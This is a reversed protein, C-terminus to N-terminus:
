SGAHDQLIGDAEAKLATATMPTVNEATIDEAILCVADFDAVLCYSLIHAVAAQEWTGTMVFGLYVSRQGVCKRFLKEGAGEPVEEEVFEDIDAFLANLLDEDYTANRGRGALDFRFEADEEHTDWDNPLQLEYGHRDIASQLADVTPVKDPHLFNAIMLM